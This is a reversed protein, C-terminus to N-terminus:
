AKQSRTFNSSFALSGAWFFVWEGLLGFCESETLSFSLDDVAINSGFTKTLRHVLMAKTKDGKDLLTGVKWKEELVDSDENLTDEQISNARIILTCRRIPPVLYALLLFLNEEIGINVLFAFGAVCALALLKRLIKVDWDFPNDYKFCLDGCSDLCCSEVMYISRYTTNCYRSIGFSYLHDCMHAKSGCIYLIGISRSIAYIPFFSFITDLIDRINAAMENDLYDFFFDFMVLVVGFVLNFIVLALFGSSVSSFARSFAYSIQMSALGFLLFVILLMQISQGFEIFLNNQDQIYFVLLICVVCPFYGILDCIFTTLWYLWGSSTMKQLLKAKSVFEQIPLLSFSAAMFPLSMSIMLSWMIKMDKIIRYSHVLAVPNPFPQNILKVERYDSVSLNNVYELLSSYVTSLALPMAHSAENNFRPNFFDIKNICILGFFLTYVSWIELDLKFSESNNLKSDKSKSDNAKTPRRYIVAGFLQNKSFKSLTDLQCRHAIFDNVDESWDPRDIKM